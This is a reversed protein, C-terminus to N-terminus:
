TNDENGLFLPLASAGCGQATPSPNQWPKHDKWSVLSAMAVPPQGARGLVVQVGWRGGPPVPGGEGPWAAAFAEAANRGNLEIGLTVSGRM